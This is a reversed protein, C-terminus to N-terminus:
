HRRRWPRTPEDNLREKRLPRDCADGLPTRIYIAKAAIEADKGSLRRPWRGSQPDPEARLSHRLECVLRARRM